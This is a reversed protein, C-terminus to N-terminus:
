EDFIPALKDYGDVLPYTYTLLENEGFDAALRKRGNSAYKPHITPNYLFLTVHGRSAHFSDFTYGYKKMLWLVRVIGLEDFKERRAKASTVLSPLVASQMDEATVCFSKSTQALVSLEDLAFFQFFCGVLPRYDFLTRTKGMARRKSPPAQEM